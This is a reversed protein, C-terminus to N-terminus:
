LPSCLEFTTMALTAVSSPGTIPTVNLTTTNSSRKVATCTAPMTPSSTVIYKREVDL